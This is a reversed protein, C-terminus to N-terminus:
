NRRMRDARIEQRIAVYTQATETAQIGAQIHLRAIAAEYEAATAIEILKVAFERAKSPTMALSPQEMTLRVFPTGENTILPGIDVSKPEPQNAM